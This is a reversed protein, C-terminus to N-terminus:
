TREWITNHLMEIKRNPGYILAVREAVEEQTTGAPFTCAVHAEGRRRAKVLWSICAGQVQLEKPKKPPKKPM